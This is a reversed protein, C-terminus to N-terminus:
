LFLITPQVVIEAYCFFFCKHLAHKNKFVHPSTYYAAHRNGHRVLPPKGGTAFADAFASAKELAACQQCRVGDNARPPQAAQVRVAARCARCFFTLFAQLFLYVKRKGQIIIHFNTPFPMKNHFVGSFIDIVARSLYNKNFFRMAASGRSGGYLRKTCGIKQLAGHHKISRTLSAYLTATRYYNFLTRKDPTATQQLSRNSLDPPPTFPIPYLGRAVPVTLALICNFRRIGGPGFDAMAPLQGRHSPLSCVYLPIEKHRSDPSNCQESSM